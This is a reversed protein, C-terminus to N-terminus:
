DVITYNNVNVNEYNTYSYVHGGISDEFDAVALELSAFPGFLDDSLDITSGIPYESEFPGVGTGNILDYYWDGNTLEIVVVSNVSGGLPDVDDQWSWDQLYFHDTDYGVPTADVPCEIGQIYWATSTNVGTVRITVKTPYATNKNFQLKVEGNSALPTGTPYGGVVGVQNGVSGDGSTPRSVTTSAIDASTFNVSRTPETTSQAFNTGDFEYVPLSTASTIETTYGPTGPLGDGVFLSDAV